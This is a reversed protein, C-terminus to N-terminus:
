RGGLGDPQEKRACVEITAGRHAWSAIVCFPLSLALLPPTLFATLVLDALERPASRTVIARLTKRRMLLDFLLNKTRCITNLASQLAGFTDYEFSYHNVTTIAFGHQQLLASLTDLSFHFLHRPVDLHFWNRKFLRAQLGAIDPVAIVLLGDPKLVRSVKQLAQHPSSLHEFVHWFTVVDFSRDPFDADDWTGAKV